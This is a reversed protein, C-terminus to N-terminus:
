NVHEFFVWSEGPKTGSIGEQYQSMIKNWENVRPNNETTKANMKEFDAGKPISIVLVLQRGNKFILLQQFGAKCFGASVEPWKKFQTAHYQLYAQQKQINPVLNATLIIHDWEGSAPMAKSNCHKQNSFVYFPDQYLKVTAKPFLRQLQQQHDRAHSIRGFLLARNKWQYIASVPIGQRTCFSKIKKIDPETHATYVIEIALSGDGGSHNVADAAHTAISLLSLLLFLAIRHLPTNM